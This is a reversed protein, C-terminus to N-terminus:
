FYIHTCVALFTLGVHSFLSCVLIIESIFSWVCELIMGFGTIIWCTKFEHLKMSCTSLFLRDLLRSDPVCGWSVSARPRSGEAAPASGEEEMACCAGSQAPPGPFTEAEGSAALSKIDASFGRGAGPPGQPWALLGQTGWAKRRHGEAWQVPMQLIGGKTAPWKLFCNFSGYPKLRWRLAM